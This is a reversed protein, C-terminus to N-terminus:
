KIKKKAILMTSGMTLVAMVFLLMWLWIFTADGTPVTVDKVVPEVNGTQAEEEPEGFGSADEAADDLDEATAENAEVAIEHVTATKEINKVDGDVGMISYNITYTGPKDVDVDDVDRVVSDIQSDFTIDEEPIEEGQEIVIDDIGEVHKELDPKVICKRKLERKVGNVDQFTYTIEYEGPTTVDVQQIDAVVSDQNIMTTEDFMDSLGPLVDGEMVTIDEIKELEQAIRANDAKEKQSAQITSYGGVALILSLALAICAIMKKKM